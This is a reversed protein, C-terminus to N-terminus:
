KTFRRKVLVLFKQSAETKNWKFNMKLYAVAEQITVLKDLAAITNEFKASSNAFLERIFLFRDNIGIGDWISNIPIIRFGTEDKETALIDNVMQHSEGLTENLTKKVESFEEALIEEKHDVPDSVTVTDIITTAEAETTHQDVTEKEEPEGQIEIAAEIHLNNDTIFEAVDEEVVIPSVPVVDFAAIPETEPTQNETFEEEIIIPSAPAVDVSEAPETLITFPPNVGEETTAPVEPTKDASKKEHQVAIKHLVELEKLLTNARVLALEVEDSLPLSELLFEGTIGELHAIDEKILRLLTKAEM